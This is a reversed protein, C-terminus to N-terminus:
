DFHARARREAVTEFRSRRVRGRAERRSPPTFAATSIEVHDGVVQCFGESQRIVINVDDARTIPDVFEGGTEVQAILVTRDNPQDIVSLLFANAGVQISPIRDTSHGGGSRRDGMGPIFHSTKM